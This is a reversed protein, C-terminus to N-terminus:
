RTSALESLAMLSLYEHVFVGAASLELSAVAARAVSDASISRYRRFPGLLLPNLLPNITQAIAEAVRRETRNGIMLAPRLCDVRTFGLKALGEEARGKTKLYFNGSLPDAGVSSVMVAHRAGLERAVAALRLVLELDVAEFAERSGAAKLTTGLCCVFASLGSPAQARLGDLLAHATNPAALDLVLNGELQAVGTIARRTPALVHWRSAVMLHSLVLGGVLGTGGALLLTRTPSSTSM